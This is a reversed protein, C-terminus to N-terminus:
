AAAAAVAEEDRPHRLVYGRGWVTEIYNKGGSANALKKRLKCMFVDIIKMEPEDIGGYLHNLFMEKTLTMGKRLSLLELMQYEKGTLHVRAGNIEVTKSDLNVGLDGSQVLSQAHGKSRRVVALIRAVLEEKRFPKTMYDDAGFGFGKVKDEIGALGSLILTPTRVKSARLSRLVEFGSMDPLNLDLLIIDYDYVKGLDIGEEGLNTTYVNFSESKLMLEISQATSIDDEIILVRM